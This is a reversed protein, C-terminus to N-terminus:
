TRGPYPNRRGSRVTARSPMDRGDIQVVVSTEMGPADGIRRDLRDLTDLLRGYDRQSVVVEGRKTRIDTEDPARGGTHFAPPKQKAVVAAQIVGAATMAIGAVTGAIPGLQAYSQMIAAATSMAISAIKGAKEAAFAKLAEQKRAEYATKAAARSAQGFTQLAELRSRETASDAHQLAKNTKQNAKTLDQMAAKANEVGQQTLEFIGSAADSITSTLTQGFTTADQIVGSSFFAKITDSTQRFSGEYDAMEATLKAIAANAVLSADAAGTAIAQYSQALQYNSFSAKNAETAAKQRRTLERKAAAERESDLARENAIIMDSRQREAAASEQSRKIAEDAARKREGEQYKEYALDDKKLQAIEREVAAAERVKDNSEQMARQSKASTTNLAKLAENLAEVEATAERGLASLFGISANLVPNVGLQTDPGFFDVMAEGLGGVVPIAGVISRHTDLIGGRLALVGDVASGMDHRLGTVAMRMTGVQEVGEAITITLRDQAVSAATTADRMERTFAAHEATLANLKGLRAGAEGAATGMAALAAPIGVVAAGLAVAAVTSAALILPIPGFATAVIAVPRVLSTFMSSLRSVSGGVQIGLSGITELQSILQSQQVAKGAAEFKGAFGSAAVEGARKAKAASAALAADHKSTDADYEVVGQGVIEPM